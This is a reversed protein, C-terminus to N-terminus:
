KKLYYQGYQSPFQLHIFSPLCSPHLFALETNSFIIYGIFFLFAFFEIIPALWEFFFWYPYGLMGFRKYRPNFFVKRHAFLTEITGRAWRCRQRGLIKPTSPGETWCLPDPIYTVEYKQGTEVMYRRMRVVLEMDEGVTKINYGGSKIVTERDFMGMAGSILLLGDLKAWAMRGMLFARTYELVQVRALFRKPLTSGKSGAERFM